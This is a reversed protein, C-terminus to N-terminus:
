TRLQTAVHALDEYTASSMGTNRHDGLHVLSPGKDHEFMNRLDPSTLSGVAEAWRTVMVDPADPNKDPGPMHIHINNNRGWPGSFSAVDVSGPVVCSGFFLTCDTDCERLCMAFHKGVLAVFVKSM